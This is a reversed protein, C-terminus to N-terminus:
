SFSFDLMMPVEVIRANIKSLKILIEVACEFGSPKIIRVGYHSQLKKLIHGNYLRYFSSLTHIGWLGLICRALINAAHSLFLRHLAVHSMKGGPSYPSALIVEAGQPAKELMSHLLELQSTNDGEMTLVWDNDELMDGLYAFSTGFAAGPGQKVEHNLIVLSDGLANGQFRPVTDDTSGDNVIVYRTEFEHDLLSKIDKLGRCLRDINASENFVPIVVYLWPINQVAGDHVSRSHDASM